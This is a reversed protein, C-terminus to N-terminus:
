YDHYSFLSVYGSTSAGSINAASPTGYDHYSGPRVISPATIAAFMLVMALIRASRRKTRM